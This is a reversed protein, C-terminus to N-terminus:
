RIPLACARELVRTAIRDWSQSKARIVALDSLAQRRVPDLALLVLADSLADLDGPPYILGADGVLAPLDGSDPVVPVAGAAMAEALKLPSFYCPLERPYTLPLVDFLAVYRGVQDHPLWDVATRRSEPLARGLASAFDGEGITLVHLDVGRQLLRQSAAVFLDFGHWPRLRGHFGLVFRDGPIPNDAGFESRRSPAFLRADVGNALLEVSEPNAGREIAYEVVGSSVAVVLAAHAFVERDQERALDDDEVARWRNAEFALPANVEVVYPVGCGAAFRAAAARGLAYREYVLDFPRMAQAARLGAQITHPDSDDFPVVEAGLAAFAARMAALHVAAGKARGPAVGADQNVCAIRM